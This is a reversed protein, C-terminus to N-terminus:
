IYPVTHIYDVTFSHHGPPRQSYQGLRAVLASGPASHQIFLYLLIRLFLTRRKTPETHPLRNPPLAVSHRALGHGRELAAVM